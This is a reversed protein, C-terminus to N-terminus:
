ALHVLFGMKELYAMKDLLEMRELYDLSVQIEKQVRYVPNVMQLQCPMEALLVRPDLEAM